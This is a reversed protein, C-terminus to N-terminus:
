EYVNFLDYLIPEVLLLLTGLLFIFLLVLLLEVVLRAAGDDRIFDLRGWDTRPLYYGIFVTFLAVLSFLVLSTAQTLQNATLLPYM